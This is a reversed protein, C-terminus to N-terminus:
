RKHQFININSFKEDLKKKKKKFVCVCVCVPKSPHVKAQHKKGDLFKMAEILHYYSIQSENVAEAGSMTVRNLQKIATIRRRCLTKYLHSGNVRYKM